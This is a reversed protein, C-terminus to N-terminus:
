MPGCFRRVWYADEDDDDDDGRLFNAFASGLQAQLLQQSVANGGKYPLLVGGHDIFKGSFRTSQQTRARKQKASGAKKTKVGFRAFLSGQSETKGSRSFIAFDIVRGFVVRFYVVASLTM